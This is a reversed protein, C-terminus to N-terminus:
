VSTVAAGVPVPVPRHGSIGHVIDRVGLFVLAIALIAALLGQGLPADLVTLASLIVTLVGVIVVLTRLWTPRHKALGGVVIEVVGVFLIAAALIFILAGIGLSPDVIVVIGIIVAIIGGGLNLGRAAPSFIRAFLGVGIRSLGGILLAAGIVYVLTTLVFQPDALVIVALALVLLGALVELARWWGPTKVEM